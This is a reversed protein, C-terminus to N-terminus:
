RARQTADDFVYMVKQWQEANLTSLFNDATRVVEDSTSKHQAGAALPFSFAVASAFALLRKM